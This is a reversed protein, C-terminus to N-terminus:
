AHTCPMPSYVNHPICQTNHAPTRACLEDAAGAGAESEDEEGSETESGVLEAAEALVAELDLDLDVGTDGENSAALM